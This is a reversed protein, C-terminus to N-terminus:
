HFDLAKAVFSECERARRCQSVTQWHGFFGPWSSGVKKELAKIVEEKKELYLEVITQVAEERAVTDGEAASAEEEDDEDGDVFGDDGVM